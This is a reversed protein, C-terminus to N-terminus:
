KQFICWARVMLHQIVETLLLSQRESHVKSPNVLKSLEHGVTKFIRGSNHAKVNELDYFYPKQEVLIKAVNFFLNAWM